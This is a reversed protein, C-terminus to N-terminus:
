YRITQSSKKSMPEVTLGLSIAEVQSNSPHTETAMEQEAPLAAVTVKISLHQKARVVDLVTVHGPPKAAIEDKLQRSTRVTKGDVAIIVDGPRLESKAAPGGSRIEWVVVGDNVDPALKGDLTQIIPIM